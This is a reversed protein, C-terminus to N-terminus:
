ARGSEIRRLGVLPDLVHLLRAVQPDDLERIPVVHARQLIGDLRTPTSLLPRAHVLTSAHMCARACLCMCACVCCVFAQQRKTEREGVRTTQCGPKAPSHPPPAPGRGQAGAASVPPSSFLLSLFSHLFPLSTSACMSERDECRKQDWGNNM